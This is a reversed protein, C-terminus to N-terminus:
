TTAINVRDTGRVSRSGKDIVKDGRSVGELIVTRGEYSSGTTVITKVAIPYDSEDKGIVFVYDQGKGDQMILSSPLVIAADAVLDNIKMSVLSNPRVGEMKEPLNVQIEFSRNTPNIFTGIRSITSVISDGSFSMMVEDGVSLSNVYRESVDSTIYLEDLNVVRILPQQMTAMEGVNQFIKDVVGDFPAVISSRSKQENLTNISNEVSEKRNKAELYEVESGINQDWLRKQKDYLITALDLSTQLEQLNREFVGDDIRMLIQGKKVKQGEKVPIATINGGNEAFLSATNDSKVNGYVDFYHKYLSTDATLVTVRKYSLTSDLDQIRADLKIIEDELQERVTRISDRKAVLESLESHPEQKCSVISVIALLAITLKLAINKTRKM